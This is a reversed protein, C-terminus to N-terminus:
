AEGRIAKEIATDLMDCAKDVDARTINHGIMRIAIAAELLDPAAAILRANACPTNVGWGCDLSMDEYNGFHWGKTYLDFSNSTPGAEVRWPGPTHNQVM